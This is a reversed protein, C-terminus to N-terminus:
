IGFHLSNIASTLLDLFIWRFHKRLEQSLIRRQSESHGLGICPTGNGEIVYHLEAGEVSVVGSTEQYQADERAKKAGNKGCGVLICLILLSLLKIKKNLSVGRRQNM